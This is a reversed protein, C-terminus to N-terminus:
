QESFRSRRHPLLSGEWHGHGLLLCTVSFKPHAPAMTPVGVGLCPLSLPWHRCCLDQGLHLWGVPHGGPWQSPSRRPSESIPDAAATSLSTVGNRAPRRGSASPAAAGPATLLVTRGLSKHLGVGQARPCGAKGLWRFTGLLKGLFLLGLPSSPLLLLSAKVRQRKEGSNAYFGHSIRAAATGKPALSCLVLSSSPPEPLIPTGRFSPPAGAPDTPMRTWILNRLSKRLGPQAQPGDM